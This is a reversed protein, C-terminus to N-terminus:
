VLDIAADKRILYEKRSNIEICKVRTRKIEGKIFSRGKISFVSGPNLEELLVLGSPDIDYKRLEKTLSLDSYTSAKPNKLHKVLIDHLPHPFVHDSILPQMLQRFIQKWEDGHSRVMRGFNQHAHLHAVEHVYTLLFSYSNLNKNISIRPDQGKRWIFDGVKTQRKNKLTLRFPVMEWLSMCYALAPQPVYHALLEAKM